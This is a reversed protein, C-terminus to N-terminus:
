ISRSSKWQKEGLLSSHKPLPGILPGAYRLFRENPQLDSGIYELPMVREGTQIKSLPVADISVEFPDTNRVNFAALFASKGGILERVAFRAGSEALEREKPQIQNVAARAILGPKECRARLGLEETVLRALAPGVDGMIAGGYEKIKPPAASGAWSLGKSDRVGEAVSVTVWGFRDFIRQIDDLFREKELPVEPLYVQHPADEECKKGQHM